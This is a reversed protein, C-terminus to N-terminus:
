RTKHIAGREMLWDGLTGKGSPARAELGKAKSILMGKCSVTQGLRHIDKGFTPSAPDVDFIHITSEASVALLNGKVNFTMLRWSDTKSAFELVKSRERNWIELTGKVDLIAVDGTKPNIEIQSIKAGRESAASLDTIEMNESSITTEDKLGSYDFPLSQNTSVENRHPRYDFFKVQGRNSGCVLLGPGVALATIATTFVRRGIIKEAKTNFVQLNGGYRGIFLLSENPSFRVVTPYNLEGTVSVIQLLHDKRADWLFVRKHAARAFTRHTLGMSVAKEYSLSNKLALFQNQPDIAVTTTRGEIDISSLEDDKDLQIWCIGEDCSAYLRRGSLDWCVHNLKKTLSAVDRWAGWDTASWLRLNHDSGVSALTEGDPSWAMSVIPAIEQFSVQRLDTNTFDAQNLTTQTLVAGRLSAGRFNVETLDSNTLDAGAIFAKKLDRGVFTQRLLTLMTAANGGSYGVQDFTKGKTYDILEWLRDKEEIMTSLFGRVEPTLVQRGFTATLREPSERDFRGICTGGAAKCRPAEDHGPTYDGCIQKENPCLFFTRWSRNPLETVVRKQPFYSTIWESNTSFLGLEAAFKYAVFFEPLSKHSFFYNGDDDRVLLSQGAIDFKWHDTERTKLEPRYQRLRDPFETFNIKLEGTSLMQWALECLFHVKDAMSTFSRNERINKLLLERTAFLLVQSLDIKKREDLSPLAAIIFEISGARQALDASAPIALIRGALANGRTKGERRTIVETIQAPTLKELNVIEFRPPELLIVPNPSDSPTEEGGLTKVAAKAFEFHEARCTLIAKAGPNVTRALEWFHDIQKQRNTRDAMEDFGDFILLLKGMRNLQEYASYGPLGIEFKRFFFDSFLTEVKMARVFDRLQILIPLRPRQRGAEKAAKYAQMAQFAYRLCFWTKGTGYEGLISIHEASADDLWQGIYDDVRDYHSTGLREGTTPDMDDKSCALDIYYREIGKQKVESELWAFYKDFTVRQDVLEDFTYCRLRDDNQISERAAPTIRRMSILWGRHTQHQDVAQRLKAVDSLTAEGEVSCVAIRDYGGTVPENSIFIFHRGDTQVQPEQQHGCVKLWALVDRQFQEFRTPVGATSSYTGGSSSAKPDIPGTPKGLEKPLAFRYRGNDSADTDDVWETRPDSWRRLYITGQGLDLNLHVFNYSNAYRPHDPVRRDYSAGAPIHVYDGGPGQVIKIQPIHQHGCLIFHCAKILRAEVRNRDFDTLWEFPHHLVAIRLEANNVQALATHIQHEGLILSARDNVMGKGDKNRGTLWTSNLCLVSLAKGGVTLNGLYWYALDYNKFEQYSGLYDSVFNRYDALPELLARRRRDDSLWQSVAEPNDLKELLNDPLMDLADRDVDHNGPVIFLRERGSDGLGTAALLPTFLHNIAAQYEAHKGHYALDGSFIIFDIKELSPDIKVRERIDKVLLDRVVDRDFEKGKQHWDSIHLWTIGSM